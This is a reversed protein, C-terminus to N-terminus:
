KDGEDDSFEEDDLWEEKFDSSHNWGHQRYMTKVLLNAEKEFSDLRHELESSWGDYRRDDGHRGDSVGFCDNCPDDFGYDNLIWRRKEEGSRILYVFQDIQEERWMLDSPTEDNTGKEGGSDFGHGDEEGIYFGHRSLLGFHGDFNERAFSRYYNTRSQLENKRNVPPAMSIRGAKGGESEFRERALFEKEDKENGRSLVRISRLCKRYLSRTLSSAENFLYRHRHALDNANPEHKQRHHKGKVSEVENEFSIKPPEASFHQTQSPITPRKASNSPSILPHFYLRLPLKQRSGNVLCHNAEYSRSLVRVPNSSTTAITTSYNNHHSHLPSSYRTTANGYCLQQTWASGILLPSKKQLGLAHSSSSSTVSLHRLLSNKVTFM